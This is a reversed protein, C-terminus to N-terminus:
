LATEESAQMEEAFKMSREPIWQWQMLFRLGFQEKKSELRRPCHREM